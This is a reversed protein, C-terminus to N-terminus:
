QEDVTSMLHGPTSVSCIVSNDNDNNSPHHSTASYLIEGEGDNDIDNRRLHCHHCSTDLADDEAGDGVDAFRSSRQHISGVTAASARHSLIM